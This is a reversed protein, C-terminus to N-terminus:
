LNLFKIRRAEPNPHVLPRVLCCHGVALGMGPLGGAARLEAPVAVEGRQGERVPPCAAAWNTKELGIFAVKEDEYIVMGNADTIRIGGIDDRFFRLIAEDTRIAM